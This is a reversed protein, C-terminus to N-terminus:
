SSRKILGKPPRHPPRLDYSLNWNSSVAASRLLTHSAIESKLLQQSALFFAVWHKCCAFQAGWWYKHVACDRCAGACHM